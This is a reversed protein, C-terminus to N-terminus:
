ENQVETNDLKAVFKEFMEHGIKVCDLELIKRESKTIPSVFRNREVISNIMHYKVEYM